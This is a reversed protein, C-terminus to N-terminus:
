IQAFGLDDWVHGHGAVLMQVLRGTERCAPDRGVNEVVDQPPMPREILLEIAGARM